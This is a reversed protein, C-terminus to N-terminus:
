RNQKGKRKSDDAFSQTLVLCRIQGASIVESHPLSLRALEALHQSLKVVARLSAPGSIFGLLHAAQLGCSGKFLSNTTSVPSTTSPLGATSPPSIGRPAGMHSSDFRACSGVVPRASLAQLNALPIVSMARAVTSLHRTCAAVTRRCRTTQGERARALLCSATNWLRTAIARRSSSGSCCHRQMFGVSATRRLFFDVIEM